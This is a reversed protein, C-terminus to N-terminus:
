SARRSRGHRAPRTGQRAPLTQRPSHGRPLLAGSQRPPRAGRRAQHAGIPSNTQEGEAFPVEWACGAARVPRPRDPRPCGAGPEGSPRRGQARRIGQGPADGLGQRQELLHHLLGSRRAPLSGPARDDRRQALRIQQGAAQLLRLVRASCASSAQGHVGPVRGGLGIGQAEEALNGRMRSGGSTSAPRLGSGALGEGQGLFEAHAREQGVAVEAEAGQIALVPWRSCARASSDAAM